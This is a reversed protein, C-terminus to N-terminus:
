FPYNCTATPQYYSIEYLYLNSGTEIAGERKDLLTVRCTKGLEPDIKQITVPSNQSLMYVTNIGQGRALSRMGDTFRSAKQQMRSLGRNFLLYSFEQQADLCYVPKDTFASVANMTWYDTVIRGGAPVEKLLAPVQYLNSFPRRIDASIFFLGAVVQLSLLLGIQRNARKDFAGEYLYLWAAVLLSIYLFGTHRATTLPFAAIAIIYSLVLNSFFLSLCKKNKALLNILIILIALSLLPIIFKLLPYNNKAELLFQTNWCNEQWWAPIPIFAQLPMEGLIKIRDISWRSLWFHANQQSDAPPFIFWASISLLLLGALAHFLLLRSSPQHSSGSPQPPLRSREHLTLLYYGHISIALLLTVLHFNSLSCLLIYYKTPRPFPYQACLLFALLLGGAYNRSLIGYEFLFYYGFPILLKFILPFPSRFLVVFVVSCGIIWQALQLVILRHSLKSLLWLLIYWGPPHGEYRTHAILEPFSSSGKAINWSHLEDSWLEHHLLAYGSLVLYFLFITWIM